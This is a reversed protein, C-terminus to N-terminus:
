DLSFSAFGMHIRERSELISGPFEWVEWVGLSLCASSWERVGMGVQGGQNKGGEQRGM